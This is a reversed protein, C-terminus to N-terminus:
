RRKVVLLGVVLLGIFGIAIIIPLHLSSSIVQDDNNESKENSGFAEEPDYDGNGVDLIHPVDDPLDEGVVNDYEESGESSKENPAPAILSEELERESNKAEDQIPAEETTRTIEDAVVANMTLAVSIAILLTMIIQRTKM